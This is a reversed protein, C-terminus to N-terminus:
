KVAAVFSSWVSVLWGIYKEPLDTWLQVDLCDGRGHVAELLQQESIDGDVMLQKLEAWVGEYEGNAAAEASTAAFPIDIDDNSDRQENTNETVGNNANNNTNGSEVVHDTMNGCIKKVAEGDFVMRDPLECRSKGDWSPTHNTYIVRQGGRAKVKKSSSKDSPSILDVEFDCFYLEDVWQTVPKVDRRMLSLEYHDYSALQDPREIKRQVAHSVLVVNVGLQVIEQLKDLMEQFLEAVWQYGKGWGPTELSTIDHDDLVKKTALLEAADATDIILTSLDGANRKVMDLLSMFSLWDYPQPLRNVDLRKSGDELDIFVPHPFMSCLTTKGWGETGYICMRLPEKKIGSEIPLSM